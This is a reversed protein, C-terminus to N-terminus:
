HASEHGGMPLKEHGGDFSSTTPPLGSGRRKPQAIKAVDHVVISVDGESRRLSPHGSTGL